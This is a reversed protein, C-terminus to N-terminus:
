ARRTSQWLVLSGAIAATMTALLIAMRALTFMEGYGFALSAIFISVTFGIGGLWSVAHLQLWSVRHPLQAIRLRVALWSSVTIGLPKGLLLGFYIGLVAPQLLSAIHLGRFRIGANAFAFLPMIAFSVWPHLAHEMRDAPSEVLELEARLGHLSERAINHSKSAGEGTALSEYEELHHRGGKLFLHPELVARSPMAIALILGALTAHIGSQLMSLWLLVGLAIYVRLRVVGSLNAAVCAAFCLGALLLMTWHLAQSYAVAIVLVGAIDDVIAFATLFVKLGPAIRSGFMALVALSFAIDTAIPVGWGHATASRHNLAVYVCAPTLVGGVAAAIPLMARKLSALEGTLLERKVELGVLLFFLTMCGDNIWFQVPKGLSHVGVAAEIRYELFGSYWTSWGTNACVLAAAASLLLLVGGAAEIRFFRAFPQLMRSIPRGAGVQAIVAQEIM